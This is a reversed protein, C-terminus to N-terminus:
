KEDIARQSNKSYEPSHAKPIALCCGKGVADVCRELGM